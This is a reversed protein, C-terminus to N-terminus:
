ILVNYNTWILETQFLSCSIVKCSKSIPNPPDSLTPNRYEMNINKLCKTSRIKGTRSIKPNIRHAGHKRFLKWLFQYYVIVHIHKPEGGEARIICILRFGTMASWAWGGRGRGGRSGWGRGDILDYLKWRKLMMDSENGIETFSLCKTWRLENWNLEIWNLKTWKPLEIWNMELENWKMEM